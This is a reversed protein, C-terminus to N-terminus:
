DLQRGFLRRQRVWDAANAKDGRCEEGENRGIPEQNHDSSHFTGVGAINWRFVCLFVSISALNLPFLVKIFSNRETEMQLLCSVRIGM